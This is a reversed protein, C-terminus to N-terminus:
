KLAARVSEACLQCLRAYASDDAVTYKRGSVYIHQRGDLMLEEQTRVGSEDRVLVILYIGNGEDFPITKYPLGGSVTLASLAAPLDDQEVARLGSDAGGTMEVVQYGTVEALDLSLLRQVNKEALLAVALAILVVVAVVLALKGVTKKMQQVTGEKGTHKDECM